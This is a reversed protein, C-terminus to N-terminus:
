IMQLMNLRSNIMIALKNKVPMMMLVLLMEEPLFPGPIKRGIFSTILNNLFPATNLSVVVMMKWIAGLM